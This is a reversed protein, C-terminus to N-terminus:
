TILLPPQPNGSYSFSYRLSFPTHFILRRVPGNVMYEFQSPQPLSASFLVQGSLNSGGGSRGGDVM